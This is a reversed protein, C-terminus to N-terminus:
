DQLVVLGDGRDLGNKAAIWKRGQEDIAIAQIADGRLANDTNKRNYQTWRLGDFRFLGDSTGVWKIGTADIAIATINGAPASRATIKEDYRTWGYNNFRVLEGMARYSLSASTGIWKNGQPDIAISSVYNTLARGTNEPTYTTWASGDFRALGGDKASSLPKEPATAVWISGDLDVAIAKVNNSPLRGGTNDRTYSTWTKGDFRALGRDTGVWQHGNRDVAVARVDASPLGRGTNAPTYAIWRTGDFTSLGGEKTHDDYTGIWVSGAKDVAISQVKGPALGQRTSQATYRTWSTGDFRSLGRNGGIWKHNRGDIAVVNVTDDLLGDNTNDPTYDTWGEDFRVPGYSTAMWKSGQADIVVSNMRSPNDVQHTPHRHFTWNGDKFRFLGEDAAIWINGQKDMAAGEAYYEENTNGILQKPKPYAKWSRGDFRAIQALQVAWVDGNPAFLISEPGYQPGTTSNQFEPDSKKYSHTSAYLTWTKGDFKSMGVWHGVWINGQPDVAISRPAYGLLHGTNEYTYATWTKGDFRAVGSRGDTGATAVWLQGRQDVAMAKITNSALAGGTNDTNYHTWRKGDFRFVGDSDSGVWTNGQADFTIAQLRHAHLAGNTNAANYRTWKKGELMFLGYYGGFWLRGRPDIAVTLLSADVGREEHITWTPAPAKRLKALLETAGSQKNTDEALQTLLRLVWDREGPRTPAYRNEALLRGMGLAGAGWGFPALAGERYMQWAEPVSGAKELIGGLIAYCDIDDQAIGERAIKAAAEASAPVGIGNLHHRALEAFAPLYGGAAAAKLWPLYDAPPKKLDLKLTLALNYMGHAHKAAAAKRYWLLATDLDPEIDPKGSVDYLRGIFTYARPEGREAAKRYWVLAAQKDQAVGRGYQYTLGLNFMAKANGAEAAARMAQLANDDGPWFGLEYGNMLYYQARGDGTDAVAQMGSFATAMRKARMELLAQKFRADTNGSKALETLKRAGAADGDRAAAYAAAVADNDQAQLAPAALVALLTIAAWSKLLSTNM